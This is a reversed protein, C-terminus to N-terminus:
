RLRLMLTRTGVDGVSDTARVAFRFTGPRARGAGWLLGSPRLHLGPPLRGALSWAYPGRGGAAALRARYPKGRRADPLSATRVVVDPPAVGAAVLREHILTAMALAGGGALHLGDDQFWEPHSRSYTNWDIVTLEAHKAAAAEIDDNMNVYPHRAARLTLWFVRDVNAAELAKLTTEIAAAYRDEADNYGVAVVVVSGLHPGLSQILEATTPTKVACSPDVLRRCAAAELDLDIGGRVVALAGADFALSTAVSDGFLTM